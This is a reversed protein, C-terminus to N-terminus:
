STILKELDQFFAVMARIRAASSIAGFQAYALQDLVLNRFKNSLQSGATASEANRHLELSLNHVLEQYQRLRRGALGHIGIGPRVWRKVEQSLEQEYESSVLIDARVLVRGPSLIIWPLAQPFRSEFETVTGFESGLLVGARFLGLVVGMGFQGTAADANPGFWPNLADFIRHASFLDQAVTGVVARSVSNWNSSGSCVGVVRGYQIDSIGDRDDALIGLVQVGLQDVDQGLIAQSAMQVDRM